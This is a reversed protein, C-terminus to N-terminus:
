GRRRRRRPLLFLKKFSVDGPDGEGRGPIGEQDQNPAAPQAPGPLQVPEPGARVCPANVHASVFALNPRVAADTLDCSFIARRFV